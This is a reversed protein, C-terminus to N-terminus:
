GALSLTSNALRSCTRALSQIILRVGLTAGASRSSGATQSGRKMLYSRGESKACPAVTEGLVACPDAVRDVLDDGLKVRDELMGDIVVAQDEVGDGLDLPQALGVVRRAKVEVGRLLDLLEYGDGGSTGM